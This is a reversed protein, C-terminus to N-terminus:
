KVYIPNPELKTKTTKKCFYSKTKTKMNKLPKIIPRTEHKDNGNKEGVSKRLVFDVNQHKHNFKHGEQLVVDIDISKKRWLYNTRWRKKWPSRTTWGKAFIVMEMNKSNIKWPPWQWLTPRRPPSQHHHDYNHNLFNKVRKKNCSPQQKQPTIPRIKSRPGKM